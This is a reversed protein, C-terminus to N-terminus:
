RECLRMHNVANDVALLRLPLLVVFPFFWRLRM